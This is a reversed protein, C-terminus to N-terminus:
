TIFDFGVHNQVVFDNGALQQGLFFSIIFNMNFVLIGDLHVKRLGMLHKQMDAAADYLNGGVARVTKVVGDAFNVAHLNDDLRLVTKASLGAYGHQCANGNRINDADHVAPLPLCGHTHHNGGQVIVTDVM